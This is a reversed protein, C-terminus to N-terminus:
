LLPFQETYHATHGRPYWIYHGIGLSPFSEFQSWFVLLEKRKSAENAWILMGIKKIDDPTISYHNESSYCITVALNLFIIGIYIFNLISIRYFQSINILNNIM